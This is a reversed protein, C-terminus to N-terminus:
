NKFYNRLLILSYEVKNNFKYTSLKNVYTAAEKVKDIPIDYMSSFRKFFPEDMHRFHSGLRKKNLEPTLVDEYIIADILFAMFYDKKKFYQIVVQATEFDYNDYSLPMFIDNFEETLNDLSLTNSNIKRNYRNLQQYFTLRRSEM